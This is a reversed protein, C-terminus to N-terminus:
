DHNMRETVHTFSALGEGGGGGGGGLVFSRADLFSTLSKLHGKAAQLGQDHARKKGLGERYDLM